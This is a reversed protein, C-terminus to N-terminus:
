TGTAESGATPHAAEVPSTIRRRWFRIKRVVAVPLVTMLLIRASYVPHSFPSTMYNRWSVPAGRRWSMYAYLYREEAELASLLPRRDPHDASMRDITCAICPVGLEATSSISATNGRRYEVTPVPQYLAAGEAIMRLWLDKDEGRRCREAFMGVKILLDRRLCAAGTWVPCDRDSIWVRVFDEFGIPRDAPLGELAPLVRKHRRDPFVDDFAAFVMGVSAGGNGANLEAHRTLRDVLREIHDPNWVDDADLFAVWCGTAREIGRNRAFAPGNGNGPLSVLEIRPDSQALADVVRGGGDSSGDDVVIVQQVPFTQSLVSRLTEGITPADNHMPVVVSFSHQDSPHRTM